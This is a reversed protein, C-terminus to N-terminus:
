DCENTVKELSTFSDEKLINSLIHLFGDVEVQERLDRIIYKRKRSSM